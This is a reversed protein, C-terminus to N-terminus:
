RGRLAPSLVLAFALLALWLCLVAGYQWWGGGQGAIDGVAAALGATAAVAMFRDLWRGARAGTASVEVNSM